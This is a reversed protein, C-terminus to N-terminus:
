LIQTTQLACLFPRRLRISLEADVNCNVLNNIGTHFSIFSFYSNSVWMSSINLDQTTAQVFPENQVPSRWRAMQIAEM